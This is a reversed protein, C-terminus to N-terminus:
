ELLSQREDDNYISQEVRPMSLSTLENIESMRKIYNEQFEKQKSSYDRQIKLCNKLNRLLYENEQYNNTSLQLNLVNINSYEEFNQM